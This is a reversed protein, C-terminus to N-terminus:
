DRGGDAAGLAGADAYAYTLMRGCVCVFSDIEAGMRRALLAQLILVCLYFCASVYLVILVCICFFCDAETVMLQCAKSAASM